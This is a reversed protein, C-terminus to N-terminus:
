ILPAPPSERGEDGTRLAKVVRQAQEEFTRNDHEWGTFDAALRRRVEDAKGDNWVFLQGDLNLPILALTKKGRQKTLGQEKAFAKNIENDVWWSSLSAGSCCLLTKDWLRIGRDVQEYIDDGPLLQHEDLWCRIGLGQLTDHLRRAFAKDTHSYSIFCSYFEIPMKLISELYDILIEQVGCGRLFNDPIKGSSKFLTDVGVTSPGEHIVAELGTTGSLDMDAWLTLSTKIGSVDAGDLTAGRLNAQKLNAGRLLAKRLNAGRLVAYGFDAEILSAGALDARILNAGDFSARYFDVGKLSAAENLSRPAFYQSLYAQDFNVNKGKARDLTAGRLNARHFFSSSLECESLDAITLDSESLTAGTLDAGRLKAVSLDAGRLYAGRLNAGCLEVFHLDAKELNRGSLDAGSLDPHDPKERSNERRWDYWATSDRLMDLHMPNAM